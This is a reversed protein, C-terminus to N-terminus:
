LIWRLLLGTIIKELFQLSFFALLPSLDLTGGIPPIFRRFMSLFPDTYYRIFRMFNYRSLAPFWSGVVNIFLLVTYITFVLHVIYIVKMVIGAIKLSFNIQNGSKECSPLLIYFVLEVKHKANISVVALISAL